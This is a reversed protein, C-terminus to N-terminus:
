TGGQNKYEKKGMDWWQHHDLDIKNQQFKGWYIQFDQCINPDDLLKNNLKWPPKKHQKNPLNIKILVGDHDSFYNKIIKCLQVNQHLIKPILFFDIRTKTGM